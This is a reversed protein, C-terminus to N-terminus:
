QENITKVNVLRDSALDENSDEKIVKFNSRDASVDDYSFM